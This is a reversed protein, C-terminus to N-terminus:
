LLGLESTLCLAAHGAAHGTARTQNNASPPPNNRKARVCTWCRFCHLLCHHLFITFTAPATSCVGVTAPQVAQPPTKALYVSLAIVHETIGLAEWAAGSVTCHPM